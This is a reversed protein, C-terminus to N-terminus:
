RMNDCARQFSELDGTGVLIDRACELAKKYPNDESLEAYELWIPSIHDHSFKGNSEIFNVTVICDIFEVMGENKLKNLKKRREQYEVESRVCTVVGLENSNVLRVIDGTRFPYPIDIYALEFRARDEVTIIKVLSGDLEDDRFSSINGDADYCIEGCPLVVDRVFCNGPHLDNPSDGESRLRVKTVSFPECYTLGYKKAIEHSAYYGLEIDWTGTPNSVDPGTLHYIFGDMCNIFDELRRKNDKLKEKIQDVLKEDQTSQALEKLAQEKESLNHGRSNYILTAKEFDSFKRGQETLYKRMDKSPILEANM